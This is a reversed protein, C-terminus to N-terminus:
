CLMSYAQFFLLFTTNEYFNILNIGLHSCAEAMVKRRLCMNYSSYYTSTMMDIVRIMYKFAWSFFGM